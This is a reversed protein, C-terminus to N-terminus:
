KNEKPLPLRIFFTSGPLKEEDYGPSEVWIKGNHAKVIGAAIALGLGPGGGKFKTRGSSHLEVKGLQFLKEFIIRHNAPDLGIGTDRVHIELCPGMREDSVVKAGVSVTGGDPTFKIANVIVADLAKQLLQPDAQIAPLSGIGEEVVLKIQRELLDAKYEKQVLQIILGILTMEVHPTINQGELRAVDLMSNVIQHLRDTGKIVGEVAMVLSDNEQIAPNSKLMGLYGKMVTIPTRLEHASVQIFSTKNKDLKELTTYAGNLEEVRQSVMREMLENFSTVEDYLRANELAIAAQMAFTTVLLLDDRTFAEVEARTLSLMGIVKNKSFLPVGMWSHNIPLWDVQQWSSAQTVDEIVVPEGTQAIQDYVGGSDIQIRLDDARPDAPFGSHAVVRTTGDLDEMLLAGREYPLVQILQKLIQQPVEDMKLLTSLNRAAKSLAEADKRREQESTYLTANELATKEAIEKAIALEIERLKSEELLREVEKQALTRQEVLMTRLLASSILNRIRLYVEWDLNNMEIWLFGFRNQALSLPMVIATYRRDEPTKGRPILHGTAWKPQDVPMQFGADDYQMLLRYNESPPVLTSQPTAMDAYFMLYLREIGLNPFHRDIAIGIEALSMAPAMSFSFGQLIEEQQELELRHLAQIRQSFEGTLMRAQQFRNEARLTMGPEHIGALIHKRLVSIVNHWLQPDESHPRLTTLLTEINRVFDQEPQERQLGALLSEWTREGAVQFAAAQPSTESMEAALLLDRIAAERKDELKRTQAVSEREVVVNKVSEPMCGCSWRIILQTPTVIKEPLKEGNIQRLLLEVAQQGMEYFSQRVTTLPVALARAERIDEFGVLALSGPVSIGRLQLAEFAGIAMRDNAAVLADVTLQRQDLLTRIAARGSESSFDGQLVLNEDFKLQHAQLEQKYALFRQEAEVQHQPGRLFAIKRYGHDEILHRLAARMGELNDGILNPVGDVQLANAVLPLHTYNEIFQKAERAELEYGLDSSVIIGALQETRALDYLGYSAQLHGPTIIATPKGGAFCILNLDHVEAAATIGALFELGWARGVRSVFAGITKRERAPHKSDTM